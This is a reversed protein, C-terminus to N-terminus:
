MKGMVPMFILIGRAKRIVPYIRDHFIGAAIEPNSRQQPSKVPEVPIFAYEIVIASGNGIGNMGIIYKGQRLVSMGIKPDPSYEANIYQLLVSTLKDIKGPFVALEAIIVDIVQASIVLTIHPHRGLPPETNQHGIPISEPNELYFVTKGGIRHEIDQLIVFMM